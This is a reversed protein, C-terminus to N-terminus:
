YRQFLLPVLLQSKMCQSLKPHVNFQLGYTFLHLSFWPLIISQCVLTVPTKKDSEKAVKVQLVSILIPHGSIVSITHCICCCFCIAVFWFIINIAMIERMLRFLVCAIYGHSHNIYFTSDIVVITQHAHPSNWQQQQNSETQRCLYTLLTNM